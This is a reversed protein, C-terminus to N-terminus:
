SCYLASVKRQTDASRRQFHVLKNPCAPFLNLHQFSYVYIIWRLTIVTKGFLTSGVVVQHTDAQGFGPNRM